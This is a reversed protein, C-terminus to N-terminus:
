MAYMQDTELLGYLKVLNPHNCKMLMAVESKAMGLSCM